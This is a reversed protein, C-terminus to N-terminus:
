ASKSRSRLGLFLAVGALLILTGGGLLALPASNSGSSSVAVAEATPAPTPPQTPEATPPTNM